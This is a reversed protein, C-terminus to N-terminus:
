TCGVLWQLVIHHVCSGSQFCIPSFVQSDEQSDSFFQVSSSLNTDPAQSRGSRLEGPAANRRLGLTLCPDQECVADVKHDRGGKMETHCVYRAGM